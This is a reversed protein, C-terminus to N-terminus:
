LYFSFRNVQVTIMLDSDANTNNASENNEKDPDQRSVRTGINRASSKGAQNGIQNRPNNVSKQVSAENRANKKEARQNVTTEAKRTVNKTGSENAPNKTSSPLQKKIQGPPNPSKNRAKSRVRDDATSRQTYPTGKNSRDQVAIKSSREVSPHNEVSSDDAGCPTECSHIHTDYVQQPAYIQNYTEETERQRREKEARVKDEERPLPGPPIDIPSWHRHLCVCPIKEESPEPTRLPTAMQVGGVVPEPPLETYNEAVGTICYKVDDVYEDEMPIRKVGSIMLKTEAIVPKSVNVVNMVPEKKLSKLRQRREKWKRKEEKNELIKREYKCECVPRKLKLKPRRLACGVKNFKACKLWCPMNDRCRSFYDILGLDTLAHKWRDKPAASDMLERRADDLEKIALEKANDEETPQVGYTDVYENCGCTETDKLLKSKEDIPDSHRELFKLNTDKRQSLCMDYPSEYLDYEPVYEDSRRPSLPPTYYIAGDIMQKSKEDKDDDDKKKKLLKKQIAAGTDEKKGGVLGGINYM